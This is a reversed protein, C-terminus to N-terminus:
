TFTGQTRSLHWGEWYYHLSANISCKGCALCKASSKIHTVEGLTWLVVYYRYNDEVQYAAPLLWPPEQFQLISEHLHTFLLHRTGRPHVEYRVGRGWRIAWGLLSGPPCKWPATITNQSGQTTGWLPEIGTPKGLWLQGHTSLARTASLAQRGDLQGLSYCTKLLSRTRLPKGTAAQTLPLRQITGEPNNSTKVIM